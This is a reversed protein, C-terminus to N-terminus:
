MVLLCQGDKDQLTMRSGREKGDEEAAIIRMGVEDEM